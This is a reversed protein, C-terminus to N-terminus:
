KAGRPKVQNAFICQRRSAIVASDPEWPLCPSRWGAGNQRGQQCMNM